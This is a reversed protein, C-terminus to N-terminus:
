PRVFKAGSTQAQPKGVTIRRAGNTPKPRSGDVYLQGMLTQVQQPLTMGFARKQGDPGRGMASIVSLIRLRGDVMGFVPAGSSGFTVDCDFGLVGGGYHETLNCRAQRSLVEMRGQGYSVVSVELGDPPADAVAFPDAESSFIEADLKLVALDNAIMAGDIKGGAGARYGAAVVYDAVRREAIAEGNQYGARFRLRDPAIRTGGADFVCHAATLVFSRAILTGTCMGQGSEVRGVAEWGIVAGRSAMVDFHAQQASAPQALVALLFLAVARM